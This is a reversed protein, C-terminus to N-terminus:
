NADTQRHKNGGPNGDVGVQSLVVVTQVMEDDMSETVGSRM